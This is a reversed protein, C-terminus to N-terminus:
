STENGATSLMRHCNSKPTHRLVVQTRKNISHLNKLTLKVSKSVIKSCCSWNTQMGTV